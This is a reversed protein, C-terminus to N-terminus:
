CVAYVNIQASLLDSIAAAIAPINEHADFAIHKEIRCLLVRAARANSEAREINSRAAASESIVAAIRSIERCDEIANAYATAASIVASRAATANM